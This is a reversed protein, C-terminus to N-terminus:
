IELKWNRFTMGLAGKKAMGLPGRKRDDRADALFRKAIAVVKRRIGL